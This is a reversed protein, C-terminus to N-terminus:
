LTICRGDGNDEWYLEDGLVNEKACRKKKCILEPLCDRKRRCKDGVDGGSESSGTKEFDSLMDLVFEINVVVVVVVVVGVQVMMQIENAFGMKM